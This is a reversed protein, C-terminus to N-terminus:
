LRGPRDQSGILLTPSGTILRSRPQGWKNEQPLGWWSQPPEPRAREGHGVPVVENMRTQAGGLHRDVM